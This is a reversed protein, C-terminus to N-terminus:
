CPGLDLDPHPEPSSKPPGPGSKAMAVTPQIGRPYSKPPEQPTRPAEQAARPGDQAGPQRTKSRTPPMKTQTQRWFPASNADVDRLDFIKHRFKAFTSLVYKDYHKRTNKLNQLGLQSSSDMRTHRPPRNSAEQPKTAERPESAEQPKSAKQPKSTKKQTFNIIESFLM